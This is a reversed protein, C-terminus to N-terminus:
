RTFNADNTVDTVSDIINTTTASQWFFTAVLADGHRPNGNDFGKILVNGVQGATGIHQDLTIGGGPAMTAFLPAGPSGVREPGVNESCSILLLAATLPVARSAFRTWNMM